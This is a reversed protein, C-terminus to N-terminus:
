NKTLLNFRYTIKNHLTQLESNFFSIGIKTGLITFFLGQM